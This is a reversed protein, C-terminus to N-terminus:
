KPIPCPPFVVEVPPMPGDDGVRPAEDAVENAFQILRILNWDLCDAGGSDASLSEAVQRFLRGARRAHSTVGAARGERVKVGAAALAILGKLFDAIPGTRGAAHWLPEWAEHSEWYYGHDFLEIGRLYETSAEWNTPDLPIAQHPEAGFSHGAPNSIPHPFRGPVFAYPPFASPEPIKATRDGTNM